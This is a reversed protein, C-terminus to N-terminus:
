QNLDIFILLLKLKGLNPLLKVGLCSIFLKRGEAPPEKGGGGFPSNFILNGTQKYGM